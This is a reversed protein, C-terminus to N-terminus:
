ADYIDVGQEALCWKAFAIVDNRAQEPTDPKVWMHGYAELIKKREIQMPTPQKGRRKCEMWLTFGGPGLILVDPWGTAVGPRFSMRIFVVGCDKAARKAADVVKGEPTM